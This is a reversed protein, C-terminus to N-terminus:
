STKIPLWLRPLYRGTRAKYQRYQEGFREELIAEEIPTRLVLSIFCLPGLILLLGNAAALSIGFFLTFGFTYLPHRIWRYPGSTVLQHDARVMVTPTINHSLSRFMWILAPLMLGALGLGFLRVLLPLSVAAWSILPPYSLYLFLAAYFALASVVRLRYIFSGERTFDIADGGTRDARRRYYGSISFGAIVIAISLLRISQDITM